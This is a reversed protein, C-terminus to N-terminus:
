TWSPRRPCPSPARTAGRRAQTPTSSGASLCRVTFGRRMAISPTIRCCRCDRSRPTYTVYKNLGPRHEPRIDQLVCTLLSTRLELSRDTFTDLTVSAEGLELRCLGHSMDRVPSSLIEDLDNFLALQVGDLSLRVSSERRGQENQSFFQQLRRVTQDDAGHSPSGPELPSATQSDPMDLSLSFM